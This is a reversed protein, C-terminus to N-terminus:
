FVKSLNDWELDDPNITFEEKPIELKSIIKEIPDEIETEENDQKLKIGVLVRATTRKSTHNEYDKIEVGKVSKYVAERTSKIIQKNLYTGSAKQNGTFDRYRKLIDECTVWYDSGNEVMCCSKIFLGIEDNEEVYKHKMIRCEKSEPIRGNKDRQLEIYSEIMWKLIGNREALIQPMYTAQDKAHKINERKAGLNLERQYSEEDKAYKIVFPILLIRDIFATDAGQFSPLDNVGLIMQWTCDFQIQELYKPNATIKEFGTLNKIKGSDFISGLNAESSFIAYAGQLAAAEPTVGPQSGFKNQLIMSIPYIKAKDGICGMIINQLTSKGNAGNGAWIQFIRKSANGSICLSVSYKITELTEKDPFIEDIYHLFNEPKDASLIEDCTLDIYNRRYENKTGMRKNIQHKTFDIVGDKLTVTEIISPGDWQINRRQIDRKVIYEGWSADKWSKNNITAMIKILRKFNDESKNNNYIIKSVRFLITYIIGYYDSLEVWRNGNFYYVRKDSAHYIVQGNTALELVAAAATNGCMNYFDMAASTESIKNYDPQEFPLNIEAAEGEILIDSEDENDLVLSIYYNSLGEKKMHHIFSGVTVSEIEKFSQIRKLVTRDGNYRGDGASWEDIIQHIENTNGFTALTSMVLSLWDDNNAYHIVDMKDLITKALSAPLEKREVKEIENEVREVEKTQECSELWMELEIPLPSPEYENLAKYGPSGAAIVYGKNTKLDVGPAKTNQRFQKDTTFIIHLGGSMTRIVFTMDMLDANFLFDKKIEKFTLIGNPKGEHKDLDIVICNEPIWAGIMRGSQQWQEAEDLTLQNKEDRWDGATDPSKDAKCLFLKFGYNYYIELASM